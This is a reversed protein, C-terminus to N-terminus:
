IVMMDMLWQVSSAADMLELAISADPCREFAGRLFERMPITGETLPAHADYTGDNNHVHFHSIYGECAQMWRELPAKSYANVHGTDLCLRLREDSVGEVIDLLMKPEDELVNELCVTMGTPIEHAFEKWFLISQETYWCPFYIQPNFGGHFIVKRVGYGQALKIAQRYREAAVARIKPDIACPFLESFPGHLTFRDFGKMKERVAGDTESFLKDMNMATCYEAIELGFGHERALIHAREDITSLYIRKKM